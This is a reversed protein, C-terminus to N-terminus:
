VGLTSLKLLFTLSQLWINSDQCYNWIVALSPCSDNSSHHCCLMNQAIQWLPLFLKKEKTTWITVFVDGPSHTTGPCILNWARGRVEWCKSIPSFCIYVGKPFFCISYFPLIWDSLLYILWIQFNVLLHTKTNVSAMLLLSPCFCLFFRNEQYNVDALFNM